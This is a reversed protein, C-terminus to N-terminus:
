AVIVPICSKLGSDVVVVFFFLHDTWLNWVFRWSKWIFASLFHDLGHPSFTYSFTRAVAERLGAVYNSSCVSTVQQEFRRGSRSEKTNVRELDLADKIVSSGGGNGAVNRPVSLFKRSSSSAIRRRRSHRNTFGVFDAFILRDSASFVSHPSHLMKPASQLAM